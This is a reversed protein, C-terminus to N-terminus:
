YLTFIALSEAIDKEQASYIEADFFPHRKLGERL